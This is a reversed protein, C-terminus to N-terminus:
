VYEYQWVLSGTKIGNATPTLSVSAYITHSTAAASDGFELANGFGGCDQWTTDGYKIGKCNVGSPPNAPTSGDDLYLKRENCEFAIGDSVTIKFTSQAQTPSNGALATSSGGAKVDKTAWHTSDVYAVNPLLGGDDTVGDSSTKTQSNYEGVKISRGFTPTTGFYGSFVIVDNAAVTTVDNGGKITTTPPM